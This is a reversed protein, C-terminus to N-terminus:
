DHNYRIAWITGNPLDRLEIGIQLLEDRIEDSRKFDKSLRATKRERIKIEIDNESLNIQLLFKFKADAVFVQAPQMLIGLVKSFNLISAASQNIETENALSQKKLLLERLKKFSGNLVAIAKPTNFDDRMVNQLEQDLEHKTQELNVPRKLYSDTQLLTEYFYFLRRLSNQFVTESFNVNSTYHNQLFSFRLVEAPWKQLFDAIFIHNGLSKSMKQHDITLLGTHLWYTAFQASNAAESQAIENEHHPFILDRGGGHIEFSDGLCKKAMASCEIHWGPRGLGWPSEWSADKTDDIKWLAFDLEDEKGNSDLNRTGSKLDDPNRNSLKGYDSKKRVRFYVDGDQTEYAFEKDILTEIMAIIEPIMQSVRPELDATEVGIAAMDIETDSIVAQSLVAPSIGQAKAKAIIKDDVDTYNRVYTVDYGDSKLFKRIVDFFIAQMAHGIHCNDYVTVGCAYIGIKKSDGLLPILKEKNKTLSNLVFIEPQM